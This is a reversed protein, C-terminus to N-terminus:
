GEPGWGAAMVDADKVRGLLAGTLIEEADGVGTRTLVKVIGGDVVLDTGGGVRGVPVAGSDNANDDADGVGGPSAGTLVEKAGGVWAGTSAEVIKDEVVAIKCSGVGCVPVLGM